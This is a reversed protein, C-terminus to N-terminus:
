ASKVSKEYTDIMQQIGAQLITRWKKALDATFKEDCEQVTKMLADMWCRYLKPKVNLHHVDHLESIKIFENQVFGSGAASM